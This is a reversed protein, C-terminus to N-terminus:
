FFSTCYYMELTENFNHTFIEIQLHRLRMVEIKTVKSYILSRFFVECRIKNLQLYRYKGTIRGGNASVPTKKNRLEYM